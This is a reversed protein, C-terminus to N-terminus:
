DHTLFRQPMRVDTILLRPGLPLCLMDGVAQAAEVSLQVQQPTGRSDVTDQETRTFTVSAASM